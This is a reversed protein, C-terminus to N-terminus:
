ANRAKKCPPEMIDPQVRTHYESTCDRSCVEPGCNRGKVVCFSLPPRPKLFLVAGFYLYEAPSSENGTYAVYPDYDLLQTFVTTSSPVITTFPDKKAVAKGDKDLLCLKVELTEDDYGRTKYLLFPEVSCDYKIECLQALAADTGRLLDLSVTDRGYQHRLIIGLRRPYSSISDHYEQLEGDIAQLLDRCTTDDWTADHIQPDDDSLGWLSTKLSPIRDSLKTHQADDELDEEEDDDDEDEDEEDEDDEEDEEDENEQKDKSKKPQMDSENSELYLDYQLVVRTGKTVPSVAHQCDTFFACWLLGRWHDESSFVQDVGNHSVTLDGGQHETPLSIILTAFHNPAHLTDVHAEFFGGAEYIHLKYLHPKLTKGRPCLVRCVKPLIQQWWFDPVIIQKGPIELACRVKEDVKTETGHGHPAKQAFSKLVDVGIHDYRAEWGIKDDDTVIQFVNATDNPSCRIRGQVFFSMDTTQCLLQSLKCDTNIDYGNNNNRAKNILDSTKVYQHLAQFSMAKPSVSLGILLHM